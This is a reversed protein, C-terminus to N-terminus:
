AGRMYLWGGGVRTVLCDCPEVVAIRVDAVDDDVVLGCGNDVEIEESAAVPEREAEWGGTTGYWPDLM